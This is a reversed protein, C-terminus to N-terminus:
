RLRFRVKGDSTTKFSGGNNPATQELISKGPAEEQMKPRYKSYQGIAAKAAEMRTIAERVKIRESPEMANIKNNDIAGNSTIVGYSKLGRLTGTYDVEAQALLKMGENNSKNALAEIETAIKKATGTKVANEAALAKPLNQNTIIQEALKAGQLGKQSNLYAAEAKLKDQEGNMFEYQKQGANRANSITQQSNGIFANATTPDMWVPRGMSKTAQAQLMAQNPKLTGQSAESYKNTDLQDLQNV